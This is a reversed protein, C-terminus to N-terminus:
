HHTGAMQLANRSCSQKGEWDKRSQQKWVVVSKQYESIVNHNMLVGVNWHSGLIYVHNNTFICSQSEPESESYKKGM